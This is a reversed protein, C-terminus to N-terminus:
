RLMSLAQARENVYRDQLSARTAAPLDIRNVYAVRDDYLRNIIARPDGLQGSRQLARISDTVLQAARGHQVSMSWVVDRVASPLANIDVGTRARVTAVVPDYKHRQIFDHQARFFAEPERAAIARWQRGFAGAQTPDMGRFESAWRAGENALFERVSGKVSSLQYAGYSIGGPDGSGSSVVAAAQATQSPRRGTEYVTSLDGLRGGPQAADASASPRATAGTSGADPKVYVGILVRGRGELGAAADGTRARVSFYDSAFGNPTRIEIHGYRANRDTAGPAAGYVLVAGVPADYPSRINSGPLINTFGRAELAPGAGQAAVGPMYDSVVGARQLAEKVFRYCQSTSARGRVRAEAQEAARVSAAGPDLPSGNRPTQTSGVDSPSAVRPGQTAPQGAGPLMIREGVAIRDPDRGQDGPTRDGRGLKGADFQPNAALLADLSIGSRAAIASLTDGSRVNISQATQTPTAAIQGQQVPTLLSGLQQRLMQALEPAIMGVLDLLNRLAGTDLGGSLARLEDMFDSGADPARGWGVGGIGDIRMDTETM